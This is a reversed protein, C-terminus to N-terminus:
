AEQEINQKGENQTEQEISQKGENQTEQEINQKDENQTEQEINQKDEHQTEQEINMKIRCNPSCFFLFIVVVYYLCHYFLYHRINYSFM